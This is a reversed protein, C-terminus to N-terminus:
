VSTSLIQCPIRESRGVIVYLTEETPSDEMRNHCDKSSFWNAITRVVLTSKWSLYESDREIPLSGVCARSSIHTYLTFLCYALERRKEVAFVECRRCLFVSLLWFLFLLSCGLLIRLNAFNGLLLRRRIAPVTGMAKDCSVDNKWRLICRPSGTLYFNIRIYWNKLM